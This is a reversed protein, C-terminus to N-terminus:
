TNALEMLYDAACTINDKADFIDTLGLRDKRENWVSKSIQMLGFYKGNDSVASADLRSETYAMAELLCSSIGYEEGIEDFYEQYEPVTVTIEVPSAAYTREYSAIFIFVCLMILIILELIDKLDRYNM